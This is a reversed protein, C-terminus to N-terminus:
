GGSGGLRELEDRVRLDKPRRANLKSSAIREPAGVLVARGAVDVPIATEVLDAYTLGPSLPRACVDFDGFPTEFLLDLRPITPEPVYTAAEEPTVWGPVGVRPRAELDVLVTCLRELNPMDLAPCIDLDGPEIAAGLLAAGSSGVVVFEVGAEVLRALLAPIDPPVRTDPREIPQFLASADREIPRVETIAERNIPGYVHPYREDGDYRWPATLWRLAVTLVVFPRPDDRYYANAVDVLDAMGHTLHVFGEDELSAARFPEDPRATDWVVARVLHYAIPKPLENVGSAYAVAGSSM